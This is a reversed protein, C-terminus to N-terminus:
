RAVSEPKRAIIIQSKPMFDDLVRKVKLGHPTDLLAAWTRAWNDLVPHRSDVMEDECTWIM